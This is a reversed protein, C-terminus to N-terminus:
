WGLIGTIRSGFSSIADAINNLGYKESIFGAFDGAIDMNRIFEEANQVVATSTSTVTITKPFGIFSLDVPMPFERTATIVVEKYFIRNVLYSDVFLRGAKSSIGRGEIEIVIAEGKSQIDGSGAFLDAYVNNLQNKNTEHYYSMNSESFFLWTDSAETAIATAAYQTARQLVAQAPLYTALLVLAAFVMIMIPFIITAEVAADGSTNNIFRGYVREKVSKSEKVIHQRGSRHNAGVIRSAVRKLFGLNICNGISCSFNVTDGRGSRVIRARRRQAHKLANGWYQLSQTKNWIFQAV